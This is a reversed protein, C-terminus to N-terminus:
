IDRWTLMMIAERSWELLEKLPREEKGSSRQEMEMGKALTKGSRERRWSRKAQGGEGAKARGM